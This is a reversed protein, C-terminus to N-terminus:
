DIRYMSKGIKYMDNGYCDIIVTVVFNKVVLKRIAETGLDDFAIIEEQIISKSILAGAGGVAGFYISEYKKIAEIVDNNRIGKGIMGSLGMEILKPTFSDM